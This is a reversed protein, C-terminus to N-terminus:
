DARTSGKRRVWRRPPARSSGSRPSAWGAVCPRSASSSPPPMRRPKALPTTRMAAALAAPATSANKGGAVIGAAGSAIAANVTDGRRRHAVHRLVECAQARFAIDAGSSLLQCCADLVGSRMLPALPAWEGYVAAASLAASVAAAHAKAVPTNGAAAANMAASFHVQGGLLLLLSPTLPFEPGPPYLLPFRRHGPSFPEPRPSAETMHKNYM